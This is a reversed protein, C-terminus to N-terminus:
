VMEQNHSMPGAKGSDKRLFVFLLVASSFLMLGLLVALVIVAVMLGDSSSSSTCDGSNIGAGVSMYNNVFPRQRITKNVSSFNSSYLVPLGASFITIWTQMSHQGNVDYVTGVVADPAYCSVVYPYETQPMNAETGVHCSQTAPSFGISQLSSDTQMMFDLENLTVNTTPNTFTSYASNGITMVIAKGKIGSEQYQKVIVNSIQGFNYPTDGELSLGRAFETPRAAVAYIATL